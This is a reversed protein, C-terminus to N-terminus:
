SYQFPFLTHFVPLLCDWPLICFNSFIFQIFEHYRWATYGVGWGLNSFIPLFGLGSVYLETVIFSFNFAAKLHLWMEFRLFYIHDSFMSQDWIIDVHWYMCEVSSTWAFKYRMSWFKDIWLNLLLIWNQM